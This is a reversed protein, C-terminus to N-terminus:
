IKLIMNKNRVELINKLEGGQYIYDLLEVRCKNEGIGYVKKHM